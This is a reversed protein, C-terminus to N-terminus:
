KGSSITCYSRPLIRVFYNSDPESLKYYDWFRNEESDDNFMEIFEQLTLKTDPTINKM